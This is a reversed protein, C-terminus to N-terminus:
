ASFPFLMDSEIRAAMMAAVAVSEAENNCSLNEMARSSAARECDGPLRFFLRAGNM